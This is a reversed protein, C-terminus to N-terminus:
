AWGLAATRGRFPRIPALLGLAENSRRVAAQSIRQNILLQTATLKPAAAQASSERVVLGVGLGIAAVTAVAIWPARSMQAGERTHRTRTNTRALSAGEVSSPVFAPGTFVSM